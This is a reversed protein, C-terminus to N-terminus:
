KNVISKEVMEILEGVTQILEMESDDVLIGFEKEIEIAICVCGLSDTGLDDKIKHDSKYHEKTFPLGLLENEIIQKITESVTKNESM